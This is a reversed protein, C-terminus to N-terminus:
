ARAGGGVLPRGTEPRITVPPLFGRKGRYWRASDGTVVALGHEPEHAVFGTARLEWLRGSEADLAALWIWRHRLLFFDEDKLFAAVNYYINPDTLIAGLVAEEAEPSFPVSQELPQNTM